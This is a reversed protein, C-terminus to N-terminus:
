KKASCGAVVTQSASSLAPVKCFRAGFQLIQAAVCDCPSGATPKTPWAVISRTWTGSADSTAGYATAGSVVYATTTVPPQIPTPPKCNDVVVPSGQPPLAVGQKCATYLLSEWAFRDASGAPPIVEAAKIAMTLAAIPDSSQLIGLAVQTLVTFSMTKYADLVAHTQLSWQTRAADRPCWIASWDGKLTNDRGQMLEGGQLEPKALSDSPFCFTQAVACAAFLMLMAATM